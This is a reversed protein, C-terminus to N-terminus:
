LLYVYIGNKVNLCVDQTATNVVMYKNGDCVAM